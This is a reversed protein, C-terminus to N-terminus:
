GLLKEINFYLQHYCGHYAFFLMGFLVLVKWTLLSLWGEFDAQTWPQVDVEMRDEQFIKMVQM